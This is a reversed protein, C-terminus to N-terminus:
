LKDWIIEGISFNYKKNLRNMEGIAKNLVDTTIKSVDEKTLIRSTSLNDKLDNPSWSSLEDSFELRITQTAFQVLNSLLFLDNITRPANYNVAELGFIFDGNKGQRLNHALLQNRYNGLDKWEKIKNILSKNITKVDIIRENFENETKHGFVQDYEALYSYSDIVAMYFLSNLLTLNKPNMDSFGKHFKFDVILNCRYGIEKSFRTM